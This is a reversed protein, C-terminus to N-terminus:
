GSVTSLIKQADKVRIRYGSVVVSARYTETANNNSLTLQMTQNPLLFVTSPWITPFNANGLTSIDQLARGNFQRTSQADQYGFVLGNPSNVSEDVAFPDIYIYEGAVKKFVQASASRWLFGAEQTVSFSQILSQGPSIDQPQFIFYFPWIVNNIDGINGPAFASQIGRSFKDDLGKAGEPCAMGRRSLDAAMQRNRNSQKFRNFDM